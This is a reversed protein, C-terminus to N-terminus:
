EQHLAGVIKAILKRPGFRTSFVSLKNLFGPIAITKGSQMAAYGYQAVDRPSALPLHKMIRTKAMGSTPGFGTATPGPCLATATVGTGELEVALAETFWLVYAKSAYYVSMYPGPQFAATSAVNLIAGSGRKIMAPLFLRTLQTLSTINVAIMDMQKQLDSEAFPAVDGFGANNILFDPVIGRGRVERVIDEAAGAQSLDRRLVIVETRFRQELDAKLAQMRDQRRAVAVIATCEAAAIEAFAQGIGGSAGTILATKDNMSKGGNM